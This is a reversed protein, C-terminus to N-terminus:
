GDYRRLKRQHVYGRVSTWIATGILTAGVVVLILNSVVFGTSLAVIGVALVLLMIAGFVILQRRTAKM